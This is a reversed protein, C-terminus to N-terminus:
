NDFKFKLQKTLADLATWILEETFAGVHRGDEVVERAEGPNPCVSVLSELLALNESTAAPDDTKICM